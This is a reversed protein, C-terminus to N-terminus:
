RSSPSRLSARPPRRSTTTRCASTALQSASEGCPSISLAVVVRSSTRSARCATVPRAPSRSSSASCSATATASPTGSASASSVLTAEAARVTECLRSRVSRRARPAVVRRRPSRRCFGRSRGSSGPRTSCSPSTTSEDAAAGTLSGVMATRAAAAAATCPSGSDGTVADCRALVDTGSGVGHGVCAVSASTRSSPAPSGSTPTQSVRSWAPRAVVQNGSHAPTRLRGCRVATCRCVTSRWRTCVQTSAVASSSRTERGSRSRTQASSCSMPLSGPAISWELTPAGTACRTAM